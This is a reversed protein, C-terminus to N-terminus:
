NFFSFTVRKKVHFSFWSRFLFFQSVTGEVYINAVHMWFKLGDLAFNISIQVILFLLCFNNKKCLIFYIMLYFLIIKKIQHIICTM